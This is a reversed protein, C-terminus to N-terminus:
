KVAERVETHLYVALGPRNNITGTFKVAQRGDVDQVIRVETVVFRWGQSKTRLVTGPAVKKADVLTM